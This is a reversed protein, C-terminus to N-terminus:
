RIPNQPHSLSIVYPICKTCQRARLLGPDITGAGPTAVVLDGPDRNLTKDATLVLSLNAQSSSLSTGKRGRQGESSSIAFYYSDSVNTSCKIKEFYAQGCVKM